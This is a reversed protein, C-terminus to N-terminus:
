DDTLITNTKGIDVMLRLKGKPKKQEFIPSALKCVPLTTIIGYKHLLVIETLIEDNLNIPAQFAEAILLGMGITYLHSNCQSSQLLEIDFRHPAFINHFEILLAETAQKADAKLTSDRSDFKSLFQNRSNIDDQPNLRLLETVEQLEKLNCTQIITNESENGPNQPTQFWFTENTEETKSTKLLSKIYYTADDHNNNLHRRM